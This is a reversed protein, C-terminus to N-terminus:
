RSKNSLSWVLGQVCVSLSLSLRARVCVCVCVCLCLCVCACVCRNGPEDPINPKPKKAEGMTALEATVM